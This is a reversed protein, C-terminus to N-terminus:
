ERSLPFGMSKLRKGRPDERNAGAQSAWAQSRDKDGSAVVGVSDVRIDSGPLCEPNIAKRCM